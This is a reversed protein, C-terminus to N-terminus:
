DSRTQRTAVPPVPLIQAGAGAHSKVHKRKDLSNIFRDWSRRSVHLVVRRVTAASSGRSGRGKEASSSRTVPAPRPAGSLPQERAPAEGGSDGATMSKVAVPQLLAERSNREM